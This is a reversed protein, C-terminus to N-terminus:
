RAASSPMVYAVQVVGSSAPGPAPLWRSVGALAVIGAFTAAAAVMALGEIRDRSRSVPLPPAWRALRYLRRNAVPAALAAVGLPLAAVLRECRELQELHRECRACAAAHERVAEALASPLSGDVLDPLHRRALRHRM